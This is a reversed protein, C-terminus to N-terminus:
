LNGATEWAKQLRYPQMSNLLLIIQLLLCYCLFNELLFSTKKIRSFWSM